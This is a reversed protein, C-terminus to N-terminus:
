GRVAHLIQEMTRRRGVRVAATIEARQGEAELKWLLRRARQKVSAICTEQAVVFGALEAARTTAGQHALVESLGVIPAVNFFGTEVTTELAELFYTWAEAVRGSAFAAQGLGTLSLTFAQREGIERRVALSRAFREEALTPNDQALAVDGLDTLGSAIGARDDMEEFYQMAQFAFREAEPIEGRERAILGRQRITWAIGWRNGSAEHLEYCRRSLPAARDPKGSRYALTALFHYANAMGISAHMTKFLALSSRLLHRAKTLDGGKIALFAAYACCRATSRQNGSAEYIGLAAHVFQLAGKYDGGSEKASCIGILTAARGWRDGEAECLALSERFYREAEEYEYMPCLANGLVRLSFALDKGSLCARARDLATRLAVSAEAHRTQGILAVGHRAMLKAHARNAVPDEQPAEAVREMAGHARQYVREMEQFLLKTEYYTGLASAAQDFFPPYPYDMALNWAHRISDIHADLNALADPERRSTFLPEQEAVYHGFHQVYRLTTQRQEEPNSALQEEAYQRLLEHMRYQSPAPSHLMAKDMLAAVTELRADAVDQCARFTFENRFMSCKRLVAQEEPKLLQWSQDLLSRINRHREPINHMSTKLFDIGSQIRKLIDDCSLAHVWTAAMEIALPMGEVQCCIAAIATREGEDPAFHPMVQYARELFLQAANGPAEHDGGTPLVLGDVPIVWEERINLRQRSTVLLQLRPAHELLEVLLPAGSVLHEMNDLVLIVDKERLSYLLERKPDTTEFRLKLVAAIAPVIADIEQAPALSVFYAGDAFARSSESAAQIALRTKGIGGPGALTLLRHRRDRAHRAILTLEEERGIFSTPPAPLHVQTQPRAHDEAPPATARRLASATVYTGSGARSELYAGEILRKLAKRLTSRSVNLTESLVREPPLRDGPRWAGNRIESLIRDEIDPYRPPKGM